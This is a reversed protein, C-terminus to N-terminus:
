QRWWRSCANGSALDGLPLPSVSALVIILGAGVCKAIGHQAWGDTHKAGNASCATMCCQMRAAMVGPLFIWCDAHPNSHRLVFATNCGVSAAASMPEAPRRTCPCPRWRHCCALPASCARDTPPTQVSPLSVCMPLPTVPSPGLTSRCAKCTGTRTRGPGCQKCGPADLERCNRAIYIIWDPM